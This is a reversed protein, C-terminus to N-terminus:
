KKKKEIEENYIAVYEKAIEGWPVFVNLANKGVREVEEPNDMLYIIKQVLSKIDNEAIFATEGDTYRESAGTGKLVISPTGAEAAELLVLGDTDFISTFLMADSNAYIEFLKNRDTIRGWFKVNDQLGLEVVRKEFRKRHLGDGVINFFFDNRVKKLEKLALLSFDINKYDVILGVFLMTFKDNKKYAKRELGVLNHGNRVVTVPKKLGYSKLEEVMSYSVACAKDANKLRRVVRRIVANVILPIGVVSDFCYKYKTHSTCLSPINNKKAYNNAFETLMGQTHSHVIDPKFEKIAKKTKRCIAPMAWMENNTLKISKARVVKFPFKSEDCPRHYDPAFVVVEHEKALETGLRLVVNETGGTGPLFSDTFLAIKM